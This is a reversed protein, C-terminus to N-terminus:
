FIIVCSVWANKRTLMKRLRSKKENTKSGNWQRGFIYVQLGNHSWRRGSKRWKLFMRVM